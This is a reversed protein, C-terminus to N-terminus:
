DKVLNTVIYRRIKPNSWYVLFMHLADYVRIM